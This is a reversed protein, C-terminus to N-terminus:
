DDDLIRRYFELFSASMKEATFLNARELANRSFKKRLNENELVTRIAEAMETPNGPEVNLGTTQHLNVKQVGSGEIRTAIVPKGHQMAEVMALGFGEVRNVSPFCFLDCLELHTRAEADTLRGPLLVKKELGRRRIEREIESRLTGDGAIVILYSDPLDAACKVLHPFGKYHTFRGLSFVIKKGAYEAKLKALLVRDTRRTGDSVGLHAFGVKKQAFALPLSASAYEESTCVVLSARRVLWKELPRYLPYTCKQKLIDAHWHLLVKKRSDSLLLALAAMPDPHHVHLLDYDQEIARLKRIMGPAFRTSAVDLWAKSATLSVSESLHFFEDRGTDSATLLDCEVGLGSLGEALQTM